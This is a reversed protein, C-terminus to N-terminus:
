REGNQRHRVGFATRVYAPRRVGYACVGFSTRVSAPRRVDGSVGAPLTSVVNRFGGAIRKEMNKFRKPCYQM